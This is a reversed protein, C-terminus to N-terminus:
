GFFAGYEEKPKKNMACDKSYHGPNRCTYCVDNAKGKDNASRNERRRSKDTVLSVMGKPEANLDVIAYNKPYLLNTEYLDKIHTCVEEPAWSIM